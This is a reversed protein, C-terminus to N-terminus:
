EVAYGEQRYEILALDLSIRVIFLVLNWAISVASIQKAICKMALCNYIFALIAMKFSILNILMIAFTFGQTTHEPMEFELYAVFDNFLTASLFLGTMLSVGLYVEKKKFHIDGCKFM